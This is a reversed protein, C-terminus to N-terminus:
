RLNESGIELQSDLYCERVGSSGKPIDEQGGWFGDEPVKSTREVLDVM